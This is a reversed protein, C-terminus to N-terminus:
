VYATLLVNLYAVPEWEGGGIAVKGGERRRAVRRRWRGLEKVLVEAWSCCKAWCFLHIPFLHVAVVGGGCGETAAAALMIDGLGYVGGVVPKM